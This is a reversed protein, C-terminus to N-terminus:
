ISSYFRHNCFWRDIQQIIRIFRYECQLLRLFRLVKISRIIVIRILYVIVEYKDCQVTIFENDHNSRSLFRRRVKLSIWCRAESRLAFCYRHLFWNRHILCEIREARRNDFCEFRIVSNQLTLEILQIFFTSSDFKQTLHLLRFCDLNSLKRFYNERRRRITIFDVIKLLFFEKFDHIKFFIFADRLMIQVNEDFFAVFHEFNSTINIRVIFVLNKKALLKRSSTDVFSQFRCWFVISKMAIEHNSNISKRWFCRLKLCKLNSSIM